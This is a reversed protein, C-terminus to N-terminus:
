PLDARMPLAPGYLRTTRHQGTVETRTRSPELRIEKSYDLLENVIKNAQRLSDDVLGFMQQTEPDEASCKQKLIYTAISIGQLPNRM